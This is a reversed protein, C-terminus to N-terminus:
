SIDRKIQEFEERTIEGQAYRKKLIDLATEPPSNQGFSWPKQRLHRGFILYLVVAIIILWFIPMFMPFVWWMHWQTFYDHPM